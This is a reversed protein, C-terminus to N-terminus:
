TSTTENKQQQSRYAYYISAALSVAGLIRGGNAYTELLDAFLILGYGTMELTTKTQGNENSGNESKADTYESGHRLTKIWLKFQKLIKGRKRQSKYHLFSSWLGFMLTASTLAPHSKTVVLNILAGVFSVLSGVKDVLPDIIEGAVSMRKSNRAVWGDLADFICGVVYVSLFLANPEFVGGVVGVMRLATGVTTIIIPRPMAHAIKERCTREEPLPKLKEM